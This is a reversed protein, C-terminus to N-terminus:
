VLPDIVNGDNDYERDDDNDDIVNISGSRRYM